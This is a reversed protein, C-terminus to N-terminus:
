LYLMTAAPLEVTDEAADVAGSEVNMQTAVIGPGLSFAKVGPNEQAIFEILRNVAHKSTCYDSAGPVRVQAALSSVAFFYGDTERLYKASARIANYVGFVNIEMTHWWAAADEQDMTGEFRRVSGANAIVVDLRGFAKAAAEIANQVQATNKVDVIYKEVKAEPAAKLIEARTEDLLGDSRAAIAVAAGAKAFFIATTRGIGRSAGTIFM